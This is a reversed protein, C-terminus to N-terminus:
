RSPATKEQWIRFADAITTENPLLQLAATYARAVENQPYLLRDYLEALRYWCWGQRTADASVQITRRYLAVAEGLLRNYSEKDGPRRLEKALKRKADAFENLHRDDNWIDQRIATFLAHAGKSDGARRRLSAMEVDAVATDGAPGTQTLIALAKKPQQLSIYVRAM